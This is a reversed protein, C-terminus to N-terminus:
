ITYDNEEKIAVAQAFVDKVVHVMLGVFAAAPALVWLAALGGALAGALYVCAAALCLRSIHGLHRVNEGVFVQGGAINALLRHLRRLVLAAPLATLYTVALYWRCAAGRGVLRPWLWPAAACLAALVGAFVLVCLQSLRLGADKRQEMLAM